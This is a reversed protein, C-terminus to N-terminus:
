AEVQGTLAPQEAPVRQEGAARARGTTREGVEARDDVRDTVPQEDEVGVRDDVRTVPRIGGDAGFSRVQLFPDGAAVLGRPTRDAARLAPSGRPRVKAVDCTCRMARQRTTPILRLALHSPPPLARQTRDRM